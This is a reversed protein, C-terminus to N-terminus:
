VPKPPKSYGSNKKNRCCYCYCALVVIALLILGGISCGIIIPINDMKSIMAPASTPKDPGDPKATKVSQTTPTESASGSKQPADTKQSSKESPSTPATTARTTQKATSRLTTTPQTTPVETVILNTSSQFTGHLTVQCTYYSSDELQADNLLLSFNASMNFRSDSGPFLRQRFYRLVQKSTDNTLVGRYWSLAVLSSQDFICPIEANEGVFVTVNNPTSIDGKIGKFLSIGKTVILNTSSQFTGHLTVQCTYYSSDELQADNLLLSFNASMNFRSDSGPFFRQRFLRLVQKSTDNTLVGRHWSLAVLSSQDFICPIEVNDGVFVTVNNPTSVNGKIGKCLSIGAVLLSLFYNLYRASLFDM